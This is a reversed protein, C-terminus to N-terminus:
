LKEHLIGQAEARELAAPDDPNIGMREAQIAKMPGVFWKRAWVVWSGLAGLLIIGVAVPTYNVTQSNVPYVTPLNFVM